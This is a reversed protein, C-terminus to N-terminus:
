DCPFPLSLLKPPFDPPLSFIPGYFYYQRINSISNSNNLETLTTIACAFLLPSTGCPAEGALNGAPACTGWLIPLVSAMEDLIMM